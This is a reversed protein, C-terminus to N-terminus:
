CYNFHNVFINCQVFNSFEACLQEPNTGIYGWMKAGNAYKLAEDFLM